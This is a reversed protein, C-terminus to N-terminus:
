DLISYSSNFNVILGCSFIKHRGLNRHRFNTEKVQSQAMDAWQISRILHNTGIRQHLRVIQETVDDPSGVLFHNGAQAGKCITM